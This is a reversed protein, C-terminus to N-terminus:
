KIDTIAIMKHIDTQPLNTREKRDSADLAEGARRRDQVDGLGGERHLDPSQLLREADRQEVAVRARDFQGPDRAIENGRELPRKLIEVCREVARAVDGGLLAPDDSQSHQRRDGCANQGVCDQAKALLPRVDIKSRLSTM